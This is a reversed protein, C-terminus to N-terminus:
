RKAIAAMFAAHSAKDPGYFERGAPAVEALITRPVQVARGGCSGDVTRARPLVPSGAVNGDLHQEILANQRLRDERPDLTTFDAGHRALIELSARTTFTSFYIPRDDEDLQNPSLGKALVMDLIANASPNHVGFLHYVLNHESVSSPTRGPSLADNTVPAGADLLLTVCRVDTTNYDKIAM